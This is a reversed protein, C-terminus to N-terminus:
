LSLSVPIIIGTLFDRYPFDQLSFGAFQFLFRFATRLENVIDDVYKVAHLDDFWHVFFKVM